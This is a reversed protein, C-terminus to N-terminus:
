GLGLWNLKESGAGPPAAVASKEGGAMGCEFVECMFRELTEFDIRYTKEM